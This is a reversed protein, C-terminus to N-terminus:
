HRVHVSFWAPNGSKSQTHSVGSVRQFAARHKELIAFNNESFYHKSDSDLGVRASTFIGPIM